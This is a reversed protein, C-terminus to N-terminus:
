RAKPVVTVSLTQDLGVPGGLSPCNMSVQWRIEHTGVSLPRVFLYYGFDVSPSLKLEPVVTADVGFVNDIPLQVDFLVSRELYQAPDRVAIGDISVLRSQFGTCEVVSRVFEETRTEPPENLATGVFSSILQLLLSTGAPVTCSRALPAPNGSFNVGVFWVKGSQGTSCPGATGLTPDPHGTRPTQLAWQWWLAAWQSYTKGYPRSYIPAIGPNPTDPPPQVQAAPAAGPNQTGASATTQLGLAGALAACV